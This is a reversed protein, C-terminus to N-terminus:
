FREECSVYKYIRLNNYKNLEKTLGLKTKLIDMYETIKSKSTIKFEGNVYIDKEGYSKTVREMENDLQRDYDDESDEDYCSSFYRGSKELVVDNSERSGDSKTYEVRLYLIRYYDVGM